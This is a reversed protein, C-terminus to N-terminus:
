VDLIVKRVKVIYEDMILEDNEHREGFILNNALVCILLSLCTVLFLVKRM